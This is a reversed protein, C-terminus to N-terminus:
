RFHDYGLAPLPRGRFEVAGAPGKAIEGIRISGRPPKVGPPMTFLLEYDEGGHLAQELTSGSRIPVDDVVAAVDSAKLLRALDLSLGDSLDICASALGILQRGFDLRPEPRLHKQWPKGLRGSVYVTHKARAGDRRLARGRPVAGCVMVDCTLKETHALDGGALTTATRRALKLFGSFFRKVWREDTWPALALSLLCFRPGGGMAAIDSLGRALAKHGVADAPHTDRRFHIDEILFDSTFLLDEKAGPARFVACDDGIGRLLRTGSGRAAQGAIWQTLNNESIPKRGSAM